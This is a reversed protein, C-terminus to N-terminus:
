TVNSEKDELAQLRRTFEFHYYGKGLKEELVRLANTVNAEKGGFRKITEQRWARLVFYLRREDEYSHIDKTISWLRKFDRSECVTKNLVWVNDKQSKEEFEGIMRWVSEVQRPRVSIKLLMDLFENARQGVIDPAEFISRMIEGPLAGFTQIQPGSAFISGDHQNKALLIIETDFVDTLAISSHTSIIVENPQYRLNDDIVDVIQRKWFDNFHTEPEDLIILADEQDHMLHFLSMRGLFTREGDSLWDYLLLNKLNRKRLTITVDELLGIKKWEQLTRFITLPKVLNEKPDLPDQNCLADALAAAISNDSAVRESIRSRLDFLLLRGLQNIPDSLVKSACQYVRILQETQERTLNELELRIRLGITVPYLWDINNLLGRLGRMPKEDDISQQIRELFTREGEEETVAKRIQNFDDIAQEL